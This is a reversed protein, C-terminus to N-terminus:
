AKTGSSRLAFPRTMLVADTPSWMVGGKPPATAAALAAKAGMLAAGLISNRACAMWTQRIAGPEILVGATSLIGPPTSVAM